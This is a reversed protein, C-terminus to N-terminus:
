RYTSPAVAGGDTCGKGGGGIGDAPLELGAPLPGGGGVTDRLGVPGKGGCSGEALVLGAPLPGGGGGLRFADIGDAGVGTLGGLLEDMLLGGGRGEPGPPLIDAGDPSGGGGGPLLVTDAQGETRGKGGGGIPIFVRIGEDGV